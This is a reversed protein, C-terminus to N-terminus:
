SYFECVKVLPKDADKWLRDRLTGNIEALERLQKRKWENKGEDIPVLLQDIM